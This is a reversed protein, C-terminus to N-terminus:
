LIAIWGAQLFMGQARSRDEGFMQLLLGHALTPHLTLTLALNLTLLIPLLPSPSNVDHTWGRIYSKVKAQRLRLSSRVNQISTTKKSNKNLSPSSSLMTEIASSM